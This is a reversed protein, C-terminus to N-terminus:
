SPLRVHILSEKIEGTQLGNGVGAHLYGMRNSVVAESEEIEKPSDQANVYGKSRLALPSDNAFSNDTKEDFTEIQKM